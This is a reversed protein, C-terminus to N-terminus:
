GVWENNNFGLFKSKMSSDSNVQNHNVVAERVSSQSSAISDATQQRGAFAEAQDSGNQLQLDIEIDLENKLHVKIEESYQQIVRIIDQNAAGIQLTLTGETQKAAVKLSDGDDFYFTHQQFTEANLLRQQFAPRQAVIRSFQTAFERREISTKPIVNQEDLNAIEQITKDFKAIDLEADVGETINSATNLEIAGNSAKGNSLSTESGMESSTNAQIKVEAAKEGTLPQTEMKLSESQTQGSLNNGTSVAQQLQQISARTNLEDVAVKPATTEGAIIQSVQVQDSKGVLKMPNSSAEAKTSVQSTEVASKVLKLGAQKPEDGQELMKKVANIDIGEPLEDAEVFQQLILRGSENSALEDINILEDILAVDDQAPIQTSEVGTGKPLEAVPATNWTSTDVVKLVMEPAAPNSKNPQFMAMVQVDEPNSPMLVDEEVKLPRQDMVSTHLRLHPHASEEKTPPMFLSLTGATNEEGKGEASLLLPSQPAGLGDAAPQKGMFSFLSQAFSSKSGLVEDGPIQVGAPTALQTESGSLQQFIQNFFQIM